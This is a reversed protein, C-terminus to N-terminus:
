VPTRVESFLTSNRIAMGAYSSLIGWTGAAVQCIWHSMGRLLLHPEFVQMPQLAIGHEWNLSM